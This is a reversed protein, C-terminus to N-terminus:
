KNRSKPIGQNYIDEGTSEVLLALTWLSFERKQSSLADSLVTRLVRTIVMPNLKLKPVLVKLIPDVYPRIILSAM